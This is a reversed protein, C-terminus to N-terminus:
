PWICLRVCVRVSVCLLDSSNKMGLCKWQKNSGPLATGFTEKIKNKVFDRSIKVSEGLHPCEMTKEIQKVRTADIVMLGHTRSATTTNDDYDDDHEDDDEEDFIIPKSKPKITAQNGVQPTTTSHQQPPPPTLSRM